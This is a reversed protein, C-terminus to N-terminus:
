QLIRVICSPESAELSEPIKGQLGLHWAKCCFAVRSEKGEARSGEERSQDKVAVHGEEIGDNTKRKKKISSERNKKESSSTAYREVSRDIARM